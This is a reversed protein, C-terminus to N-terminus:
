RPLLVYKSQSPNNGWFVKIMNEINGRYYRGMESLAIVDTNSFYVTKLEPCHNLHVCTHGSLMLLTFILLIGWQNLSWPALFNTRQFSPMAIGNLFACLPFIPSHKWGQKWGENIYCYTLSDKCLNSNERQTFSMNTKRELAISHRIAQTFCESLLFAGCDKM